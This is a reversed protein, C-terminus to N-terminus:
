EDGDRAARNRRWQKAAWLFYAVVLVLNLLAGVLFFGGMDAGSGVDDAVDLIGQDGATATTEGGTENSANMIPVPDPKLSEPLM